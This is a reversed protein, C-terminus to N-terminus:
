FKLMILYWDILSVEMLSFRLYSLSISLWVDALSFEENVKKNYLTSLAALQFSCELGTYDFTFAGVTESGTHSGLRTTSNNFGATSFSSSSQWGLQESMCGFSQTLLCVKVLRERSVVAASYSHTKAFGMRNCLLSSTINARMFLGKGRSPSAKEFFLSVPTSKGNTKRLVNLELEYWRM